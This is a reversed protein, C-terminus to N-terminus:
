PGLASEPPTLEGRLNEGMLKKIRQPDPDQSFLWILKTLAAEATMDRGSIIGIEALASGTAYGTQDVQGRLCQSCNVIVTGHMCAKELAKMFRINRVPGNGLGFTEIILGKLPRTLINEVFDASIGPFIRLAGVTVDETVLAPSFPTRGSKL